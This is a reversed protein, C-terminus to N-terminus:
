LYLFKGARAINPDDFVVSIEDTGNRLNVLKVASESFGSTFLSKFFGQLFFPM